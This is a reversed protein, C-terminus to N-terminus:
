TKYRTQFANECTNVQSVHTAKVISIDLCEHVQPKPHSGTLVGAASVGYCLGRGTEIM